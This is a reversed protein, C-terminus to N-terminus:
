RYITKIRGWSSPRAPTAGGCIHNLHAQLIALDASDVVGQDCDLDMTPDAIGVKTSGIFADNNSVFLDGDQDPSSINRTALNVGDAYVNVQPVGVGGAQIYLTISGDVATSGGVNCGSPPGCRHVNGTCFDVTVFSNAIPNNAFDRVVVHFPFDGAPCLILCPDVTSNAASPVAAAGAPSSDLSVALFLPIAITPLM